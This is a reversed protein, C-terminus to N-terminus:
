AKTGTAFGRYQPASNEAEALAELLCVILAGSGSTVVAIKAESDPNGNRRVVELLKELGTKTVELHEVNRFAVFSQMSLRTHKDALMHEVSASVEADTLTDFASIVVM